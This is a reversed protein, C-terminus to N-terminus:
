QILVLSDENQVYRLGPRSLPGATALTAMPVSRGPPNRKPFICTHM